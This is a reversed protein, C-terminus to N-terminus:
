PRCGRTVIGVISVLAWAVIWLLIVTLFPHAAAFAYFETM